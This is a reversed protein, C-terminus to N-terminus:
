QPRQVTPFDGGSIIIPASEEYWSFGLDYYGATAVLQWLGLGHGPVILHNIRRLIGSGARVRLYWGTDLDADWTPQVSFPARDLVVGSPPAIARQSHNIIDPTVTSGPTGRTSTAIFTVAGDAAPTANFLIFFEVVTIRATAHPNWLQAIVTGIATTTVTARITYV